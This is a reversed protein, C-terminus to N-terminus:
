KSAHHLHIPVQRKGIGYKLRYDGLAVAAVHTSYHNQEAIEYILMLQDYIFDVKNRSLIPHYGLPDLEQTVNILGGANIVFDPAYLINRKMLDDGDSDRLLQNNACGAVAKCRLKPITQSNLIGGM